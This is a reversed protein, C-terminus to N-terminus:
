GVLYLTFCPRKGGEPYVYRSCLFSALHAFSRELSCLFLIPLFFFPLLAERCSACVSTGMIVFQGIFM